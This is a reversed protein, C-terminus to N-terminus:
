FPTALTWERSDPVLGVSLLILTTSVLRVLSLMVLLTRNPSEYRPYSDTVHGHRGFLWHSLADLEPRPGGVV